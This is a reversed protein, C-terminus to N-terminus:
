RAGRSRVTSQAQVQVGDVRARDARLLEPPLGSLASTRRPLERGRRDLPTLTLSVDRHVVHVGEPAVRVTICAFRVLDELAGAADLLAMCLQVQGAAQGWCEQLASGTALLARLSDDAFSLRM